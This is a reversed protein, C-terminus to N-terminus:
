IYQTMGGKFSELDNDRLAYLAQLLAFTSRYFRARRRMPVLHPDARVIRQM